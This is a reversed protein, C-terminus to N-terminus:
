KDVVDDDAQKVKNIDKADSDLAAAKTVTDNAKDLVAKKEDATKQAANAEDKQAKYDSDPKVANQKATDLDKKASDVGQQANDVDKQASDVNAQANEKVSKAKTTTGDPKVDAKVTESINAGSLFAGALAAATLSTLIGKSKM